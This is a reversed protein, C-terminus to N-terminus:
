SSYIIFFFIALKEDNVMKKNLKERRKERKQVIQGYEM